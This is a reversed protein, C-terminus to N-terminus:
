DDDDKQIQESPVYNGFFHTLKNEAFYISLTQKKLKEGSVKITYVYDWRDKKLPDQLIPNGLVFRVQSKSMGPKLRDIMQQTVVNGQQIRLKYVGPFGFNSCGSVLISCIVAIVKLRLLREM